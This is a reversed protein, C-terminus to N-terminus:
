FFEEVVVFVWAIDAREILAFVVDAGAENAPAEANGSAIQDFAADFDDADESPAINAPNTAM